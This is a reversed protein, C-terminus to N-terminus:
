PFIKIRVLSLALFTYANAMLYSDDSLWVQYVSPNPVGFSKENPCLMINHFMYVALINAFMYPTKRWFEFPYSTLLSFFLFGTLVLFATANPNQHGLSFNSFSLM